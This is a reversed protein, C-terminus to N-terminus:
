HNQPIRFFAPSSLVQLQLGGGVLCLCLDAVGGGPQCGRGLGRLAASRPEGLGGAAGQAMGLVNGVPAAKHCRGGAM